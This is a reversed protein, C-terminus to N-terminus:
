TARRCALGAAVLGVTLLMFPLHGYLSFLTGPFAVPLASDLKDATQLPISAVVAGAADIVASIGTTASRVVPVGEEIARFRAVTLHQHPGTQTGFWSDDTINVLWDPRDAEDAVAGPFLIEYCVLPSFAPKGPLRITRRGPGPSFSGGIRATLSDIDLARFAQPFPLYEGFPVLHAKDYVDTAVGNSDIVLLANYYRITRDTGIERRATGAILIQGPRMLRAIAAMAETSEDLFPIVGEPWVFVDVAGAGPAATLGALRQWLRRGYDALGKESQPNDPQVVRLRLPPERALEAYASERLGGYVWAASLLALGLAFPVFRAGGRERVLPPLSFGALLALLTLGYVGAVAAAQAVPTDIFTSGFLNWPFGTFIFGRVFEVTGFLATLVLAGGAGRRPIAAAVGCALAHFLALGAPLLTVAFPMMWITDPDVFFAEGVWYLGAGFYGFGFAWGTWAARRVGRPGQAAGDVLVFLAALAAILVPWLNFPAMGAVAAGGAVLALGM